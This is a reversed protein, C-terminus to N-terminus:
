LTKKKKLESKLFEIQDILVNVINKNGKSNVENETEPSIVKISNMNSNAKLSCTANIANKVEDQIKNVLTECFKNNIFHDLSNLNENDERQVELIESNELTELNENGVFKFSEMDTKGKNINTIICREILNEVIEKIREITIDKDGRKAFALINQYCAKNHNNKIRKIIRIIRIEDDEINIDKETDM